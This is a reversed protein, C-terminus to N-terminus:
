KEFDMIRSRLIALSIINASRIARCREITVICLFRNDFVHNILDILDTAELIGHDRRYGQFLTKHRQPTDGFSNSSSDGRTCTGNQSLNFWSDFSLPFIFSSLFTTM